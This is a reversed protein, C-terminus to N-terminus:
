IAVYKNKDNKTLEKVKKLALTFVTEDIQEDYVKQAFKESLLEKKMIELNLSFIQCFLPLKKEDFSRKGTEIKSLNASDMDLMAALKTLTLQKSKRLARLQNGFNGM